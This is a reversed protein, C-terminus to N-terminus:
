GGLHTVNDPNKLVRLIFEHEASGVVFFRAVPHFEDAAIIVSRAVALDDILDKVGAESLVDLAQQITMERGVHQALAVIKVSLDELESGENVCRGYTAPQESRWLREVLPKGNLTRRRM